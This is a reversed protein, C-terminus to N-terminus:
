HHIGIDFAMRSHWHQIDINSHRHQIGIDFALTSHWHQIGLDFALTSHWHQIGINFALTSHWHQIGINFALTSHWHQLRLYPPGAWFGWFPEFNTSFPRWNRLIPGCSDWPEEPAKPVPRAWEIKKEAVAPPTVGWRSESRLTPGRRIHAM